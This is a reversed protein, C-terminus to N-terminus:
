KVTLNFHKHRFALQKYFSDSAHQLLDYWLGITSHIHYRTIVILDKLCTMILNSGLM